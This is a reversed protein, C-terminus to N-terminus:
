VVCDPTKHQHNIGLLTAALVLMPSRYPSILIPRGRFILFDVVLSMPKLAHPTKVAGTYGAVNL